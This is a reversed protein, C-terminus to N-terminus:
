LSARERYCLPFDYCHYHLAIHILCSQIEQLCCLPRTTLMDQLSSYITTPQHWHGVPKHGCWHKDWKEGLTLEGEWSILICYSMDILIIMMISILFFNADLNFRRVPEIYLIGYVMWIFNEVSNEDVPYANTYLCPARMECLFSSSQCYAPVYMFYLALCIAKWREQREQRCLVVITHWSISLFFTCEMSNYIIHDHLMQTLYEPHLSHIVIALKRYVSNCDFRKKEDM